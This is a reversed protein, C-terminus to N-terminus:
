RFISLKLLKCFRAQTLSVHYNVPLTKLPLNKLTMKENTSTKLPKCYRNLIKRDSKEGFHFRTNRSKDSNVFVNAIIVFHKPSNIFYLLLLYFFIIM